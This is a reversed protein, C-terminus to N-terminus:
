AMGQTDQDPLMRVVVGLLQDSLGDLTIMFNLLTVQAPLPM